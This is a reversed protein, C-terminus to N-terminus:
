ALRRKLHIGGFEDLKFQRKSLQEAVADLWASCSDAFVRMPYSGYNYWSFVQGYNGTPGPDLDLVLKDGEFDAIPIWGARWHTDNKIERTRTERDGAFECECQLEWLLKWDTAIRSCPNLTKYDVFAEVNGGSSKMGDHIKLSAIFDRPLHTGLVSELKAVQRDSAPPRLSRFASHAHEKLVSEIIKWSSAVRRM